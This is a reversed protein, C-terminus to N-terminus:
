GRNSWVWLGWLIIMVVGLGFRLIFAWGCGIMMGKTVKWAKNHDRLRIYEYVFLFIPAAILGGFPPFLITGLLGAITSFIISWWSAGEKRARAGMLIDDAVSSAIMLLTLIIFILIGWGNFGFLLGYIFAALWIIVGGPFIPIVMGFLGVLMVLLLVFITFGSLFELVLETM